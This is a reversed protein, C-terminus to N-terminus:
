EPAGANIWATLKSISCDDLKTGGKPMNSVGDEHNIAPIIKMTDVIIKADTYTEFSGVRPEDKNAEVHCGGLTACNTVLFDQAFNDYTLGTTECEGSDDDDGCSSIIILGSILLVFLFGYKRLNLLQM